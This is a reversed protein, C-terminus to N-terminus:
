ETVDAEDASTGSAKELNGPMDEVFLGKPDMREAIEQLADINGAMAQALLSAAEPTNDELKDKPEDEVM